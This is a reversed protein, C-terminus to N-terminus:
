GPQKYASMTHIAALEFHALVLPFQRHFTFAGQRICRVSQITHAICTVTM